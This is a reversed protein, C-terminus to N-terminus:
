KRLSKGKFEVQKTTAIIREYVREGYRKTIEQNEFTCFGFGDICEWQFHKCGGCCEKEELEIEKDM